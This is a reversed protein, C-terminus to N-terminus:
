NDLSLQEMMRQIYVHVTRYILEYQQFTQVASDRYERITKVTEFINVTQDQQYQKLVLDIAVLSGSRGVGASCHITLPTKNQYKNILEVLTLIESVDEPVGRDPWNQYHIQVVERSEQFRSLQFTRLIPGELLQSRKLTVQLDGYTQTKEPWYQDAKPRVGEMLKTLMLIVSSNQEWIMRWFDSFTEPLPAQTLIYGSGNPEPVLNANIYDSGYEQTLTLKVRSQERPLIDKYRNKCDNVFEYGSTYDLYCMDKQRSSTLQLYEWKIEDLSKNLFQNIM